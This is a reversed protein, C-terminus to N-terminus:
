EQHSTDERGREKRRGLCSGAAESLIKVGNSRQGQWIETETALRAGRGLEGQGERRSGRM